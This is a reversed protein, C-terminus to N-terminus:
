LKESQARPKAIQTMLHFAYSSSLSKQTTRAGHWFGLATGKHFSGLTPDSGAVSMADSYADSYSPGRAAGQLALQRLNAAGQRLETINQFAARNQRVFSPVQDPNVGAMCYLTTLKGATDSYMSEPVTLTFRTPQRSPPADYSYSSDYNTDCSAMCLLTLVVGAHAVLSRQRHSNEHCVIPEM